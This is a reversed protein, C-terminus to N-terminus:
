ESPSILNSVEAKRVGYLEEVKRCILTALKRPQEDEDHELMLGM